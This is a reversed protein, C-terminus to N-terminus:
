GLQGRLAGGPYAANHVNVYYDAPDKVIDRALTRDVTTCASSSGDTPPELHVVVPGASGAPAEHIHAGTIPDVNSVTLTYCIEGTGPNVRLSAQGRGDPDGPTVEAAGTLSTSLPRGGAASAPPAVLAVAAPVAVLTGVLLTVRRRM